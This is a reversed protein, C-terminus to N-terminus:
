VPPNNGEPVKSRGEKKHCQKSSPTNPLLKKQRQRAQAIDYDQQLGMWLEVSTGLAQSIELAAEPTLGRKGRIIENLKAPTWGLYQAFSAQTLGSPKLFEEFLIEGM